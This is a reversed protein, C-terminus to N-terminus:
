KLEPENEMLYLGNNKIKRLLDRTVYWAYDYEMATITKTKLAMELEDDDLLLWKRDPFIIVDLYLDKHWPVGNETVGHSYCIDIYWQVVEKHDDLMVTTVYSEGKPFYQVWTYDKDVICISRDEYKVRLPEKVSHIKLESVWGQFYLGKREYAKWSMKEIRKWSKRDAYKLKL